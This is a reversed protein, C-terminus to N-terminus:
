LIADSSFGCRGDYRKCRVDIAVEGGAEDVQGTTVSDVSTTSTNGSLYGWGRAVTEFLRGSRECLPRGGHRAGVRDLGREYYKEIYVKM